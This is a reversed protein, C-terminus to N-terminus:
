KETSLRIMLRDSVLRPHFNNPWVDDFHSRGLRPLLYQMDCRSMPHILQKVVRNFFRSYRFPAGHGSDHQPDDTTQHEASDVDSRGAGVVIEAEDPM